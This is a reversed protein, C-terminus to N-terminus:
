GRQIIGAWCIIMMLIVLGELLQYYAIDSNLNNFKAPETIYSTLAMEQDLSTIKIELIALTIMSVIAVFIISIIMAVM